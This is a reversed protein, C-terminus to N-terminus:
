PIFSYSKTTMPLPMAPSVKAKFAAACPETATIVFRLPASEFVAQACPPIAQTVLSSSENSSCTCSVSSAPAPRHSSAATRVITISPGSAPERTPPARAANRRARLRRADRARDRARPRGNSAARGAHAPRSRDRSRSSAAARARGARGPDLQQFIVHRDIQDRRAFKAEGRFIAAEANVHEILARAFHFRNPGVPQDQGRAAAPFNIEVRRVRVDRRAVAHRHGPARSRDDRVHLEDLEM